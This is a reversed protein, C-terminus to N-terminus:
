PVTDGGCEECRTIWFGAGSLQAFLDVLCNRDHAQVHMKLGRPFRRSVASELMYKLKKARNEDWIAEGYRFSHVGLAVIVRIPLIGSSGDM